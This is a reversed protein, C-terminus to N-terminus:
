AAGARQACRWGLEALAAVKAGRQTADGPGHVATGQLMAALRFLNCALHFDWHRFVPVPDVERARCYDEIFAHEQPIGLATLDVGAVGRWLDPPLRWCMAYFCLDALPHGLAAQDWGIVAAIRSETPHLILNEMCFDGHVLAVEDGEPVGAPLWRILAEMAEIRATESARYQRTWRDIQGAIDNGQGGFDGLGAAACDFRHLAALTRHIDAYIAQRQAVSLGPLAPDTFRRGQVYEMLCFPTGLWAPDNCCAITRPVPVGSDALAAMVRFERDIARVSTAPAGPRMKRLVFVGNATDVRFAAHPRGGPLAQVALGSTGIGAQRLWDHLAGLDVAQGADAPALESAAFPQPM